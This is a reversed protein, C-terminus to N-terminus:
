CVRGVTGNPGTDLSFYMCNDLGKMISGGGTGMGNSMQRLKTFTSGNDLSIWIAARVATDNRLVAIWNSVLSYALGVQPVGNDSASDPLSFTKAVIGNEDRMTYITGSSGDHCIMRKTLDPM